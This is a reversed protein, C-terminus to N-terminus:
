TTYENLEKAEQKSIKKLAINGCVLVYDGPMAKEYLIQYRNKGCFATRKNVRSIQKVLTQCM